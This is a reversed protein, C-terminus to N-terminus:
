LWPHEDRTNRTHQTPILRHLTSIVHKSVKMSGYYRKATKFHPQCIIGLRTDAVLSILGNAMMNELDKTMFFMIVWPETDKLHCHEVTVCLKYVIKKKIGVSNATRGTHSDSNLCIPELRQTM